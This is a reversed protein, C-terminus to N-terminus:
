MAFSAFALRTTEQKLTNEEGEAEGRFGNALRVVSIQSKASHRHSQRTSKIPCEAFGVKGLAASPLSRRETFTKNVSHPVSPV